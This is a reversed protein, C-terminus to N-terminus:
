KILRRVSPYRTNLYLKENVIVHFNRCIEISTFDQIRHNTAVRADKKKWLIDASRGSAPEIDHKAIFEDANWWVHHNEFFIHKWEGPHHFEFMEESALPLHTTTNSNKSFNVNKSCVFYQDGPMEYQRFYRDGIVNFYGDFFSVVRWGLPTERYYSDRSIWDSGVAYNEGKVHLIHNDMLEVEDDIVLGKGYYWGGFVRKGHMVPLTFSTGAVFFREDITRCSNGCSADVYIEGKDLTRTSRIGIQIISEGQYMRTIVWPYVPRGYQVVDEGNVKIFINTPDEKTFFVVVIESNPSVMTTGAEPHTM